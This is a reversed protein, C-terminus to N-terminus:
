RRRPPSGKVGQPLAAVGSELGRLWHRTAELRAMLCRRVERRFGEPARAARLRAIEEGVMGDYGAVVGKRDEPSLTELFALRALLEDKPRPAPPLGAVWKKLERRGAATTRYLNRRPGRKPGLVRLLIFGARRLRALAPYIQSYEARWVSDLEERMARELDYGTRPQDALLGLLVHPLSM